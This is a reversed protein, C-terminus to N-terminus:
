YRNSNNPSIECAECKTDPFEIFAEHNGAFDAVRLQASNTEPVRWFEVNIRSTMGPKISKEEISHYNYPGGSQHFTDHVKEQKTPAPHRRDYLELQSVRLYQAKTANNTLLLQVALHATCTPFFGSNNIPALCKADSLEWEVNGTVAKKSGLKGSDASWVQQPRLSGLV